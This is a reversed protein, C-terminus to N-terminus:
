LDSVEALVRGNQIVEPLRAPFLAAPEYIRFYLVGRKTGERVPVWNQGSKEQSFTIEYQGNKNLAVSESNVSPNVETWTNFTFSWYMAETPVGKVTVAGRDFRVPFIWYQCDPHIWRFRIWREVMMWPRFYHRTAEQWSQNRDWTGLYFAWGCGAAVLLLVPSLLVGELLINMLESKMLCGDSMQRELESRHIM